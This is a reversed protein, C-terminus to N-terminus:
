EGIWPVLDLNKNFTRSLNTKYNEMKKPGQGRSKPIVMCEFTSRTNKWCDQCIHNHQFFALVVNWHITTKWDLPCFKIRLHLWSRLTSSIVFPYIQGYIEQKTRILICSVETKIGPSLSDKKREKSSISVVISKTQNWFKRWVVMKHFFMQCHSFVREPKQFLNFPWMVLWIKNEALLNCHSLEWQVKM